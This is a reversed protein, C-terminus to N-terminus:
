RRHTTWAYQSQSYEQNGLHLDKLNFLEEETTPMTPRDTPMENPQQNSGHGAMAPAPSPQASRNATGMDPVGNQQVPMMPAMQMSQPDYAMGYQQYQHQVDYPYAYYAGQVPYSYTGGAAQMQQMQPTLHMMAQQAQLQYALYANADAQTYHPYYAQQYAYQSPDYAAPQMASMQAAYDNGFQQQQQPQYVYQGPMVYAQMQQNPYAAPTGQRQQSSLNDPTAHQQAYNVQMMPYYQYQQQQYQEPVSPSQSVQRLQSPETNPVPYETLAEGTEARGTENAPVTPMVNPAEPAMVISNSRSNTTSSPRSSTAVNAAYMSSTPIESAAHDPYAGMPLVLTDADQNDPVIQKPTLIRNQSSAAMSGLQPTSLQPTSRESNNLPPKSKGALVSSFSLPLNNNTSASGSAVPAPVNALANEDNIEPNAEHGEEHQDVTENAGNGAKLAAAYSFTAAGQNVTEKEQSAKARDSEAAQSPARGDQGQRHHRKSEKGGKGSSPGSSSPGHHKNHSGSHGAKPPLENPGLKARPVARKVEVIKGNIVHEAEACTRDAGTESEFVVFGFGRSKHTERNFMVESQVM